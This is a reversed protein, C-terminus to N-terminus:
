SAFLTEIVAGALRQPSAPDCRLYLEPEILELEMLVFVDDVEIGDVRAYLLDEPVSDVIAQATALFSAPPTAGEVTGGHEGQVRFDGAKARKVCAHSFQKNFFSLAWEGKTTVEPLFAQVMVGSENLLAAFDAQEAPATAPTTVWTRYATASLTPKVVAQSWGQAQLIEALQATEGCELWVTPAVAFGREAFDRLYTKRMNWRMTSVQNWMRSHQAEMLDLWQVFRAEKLHYDWTSRVLVGDFRKWSVNEDDWVVPEVTIGQRELEVTFLRDDATLEPIELCTAIALTPM